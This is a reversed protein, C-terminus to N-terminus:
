FLNTQGSVISPLDSRPQFFYGVARHRIMSQVFMGQKLQLDVTHVAGAAVTITKSDSSVGALSALINYDGVAVNEFKYKGNAQTNKQQTTNGPSLVVSAGQMTTNDAKPRTFLPQGLACLVFVL